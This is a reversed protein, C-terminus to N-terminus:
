ANLPGVAGQGYIRRTLSKVLRVRGGNKDASLYQVRTDHGRIGPKRGMRLFIQRGILGWQFM